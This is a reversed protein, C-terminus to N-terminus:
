PIWESLEEEGFSRRFEISLEAGDWCESVLVERDNVLGQNLRDIQTLGYPLLEFQVLYIYQIMGM